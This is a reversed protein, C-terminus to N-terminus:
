MCFDFKNLAAIVARFKDIMDGSPLEVTIYGPLERGCYKRYVKMPEGTGLYTTCLDKVWRFHTVGNRTFMSADDADISDNAYWLRERGRDYFAVDYLKTDYDRYIYWGHHLWGWYHIHSITYEAHRFIGISRNMAIPKVLGLNMIPAVNFTGLHHVLEVWLGVRAMRYDFNM